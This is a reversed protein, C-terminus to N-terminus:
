EILHSPRRLGSSMLSGRKAGAPTSAGFDLGVEGERHVDQRPQGDVARGRDDLEGAHEVAATRLLLDALVEDVVVVDVGDDLQRGVEEEARRDGGADDHELLALGVVRDEEDVGRREEGPRAVLVLEGLSVLLLNEVLEYAALGSGV